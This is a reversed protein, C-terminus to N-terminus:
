DSPLVAIAAASILLGEGPLGSVRVGTGCHAQTAYFQVRVRTLKEWFATLGEDTGDFVYFTNMKVVDRWDAGGAQLVRTINRFTNYTQREIDGTGLVRGTADISFQAGTFLM